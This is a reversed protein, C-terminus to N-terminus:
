AAKRRNEYYRLYARLLAQSGLTAMKRFEVQDNAGEYERTRTYDSLGLKGARIAISQPSRNQMQRSIDAYSLGENFLRLVTQDEEDTWRRPSEIGTVEHYFHSVAKKSRNLRAAIAALSMGKKRKALIFEQQAPTFPKYQM